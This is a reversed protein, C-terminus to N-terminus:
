QVAAQDSPWNGFLVDFEALMFQKGMREVGRWRKRAVYQMAMYHPLDHHPSQM